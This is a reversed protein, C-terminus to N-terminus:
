RGAVESGPQAAAIWKAAAAPTAFGDESADYVAMVGDRHWRPRAEARWRWAGCPTTYGRVQGLVDAQVLQATRRGAVLYGFVEPEGSLIQRGAYLWVPGAKVPPTGYGIAALPLHRFSHLEGDLDLIRGCSRCLIQVRMATYHSQHDKCAPNRCAHDGGPRATDDTERYRVEWGATRCGDGHLPQQYGFYDETITM